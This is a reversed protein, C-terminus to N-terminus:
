FESKQRRRRANEREEGTEREERRRGHETTRGGDDARRGSSNRGDSWGNAGHTATETQGAQGRVSGMPQGSKKTGRQPLKFGHKSRQNRNGPRGLKSRGGDEPRRGDSWGVMRGDSWRIM